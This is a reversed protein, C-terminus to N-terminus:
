PDSVFQSLVNVVYAIDPCTVQLYMLKGILRRHQKADVRHDVDRKDLKLNQEMPFTSLRCGMMGTEELNDLTYKRPSLVMLQKTRAVEVGLFFKLPGLDKISFQDDLFQKTAHIKDLNDGVLIVDDVYILTAVFVGGEKFLFLSHDVKSQKFGYSQISTTFKQYWNRLAQKLGYISKKLKCVRNDNPKEFGQPNKM